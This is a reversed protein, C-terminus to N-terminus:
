PTERCRSPAFAPTKEETGVDIADQLLKLASSPDDAFAFLKLDARSIMGHRILAEFNIIENWYSSGYLIIPLKRALKQTQALTLVEM